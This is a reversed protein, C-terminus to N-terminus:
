RVVFFHEGTGDSARRFHNNGREGELKEFFRFLPEAQQRAYGRRGGYIPYRPHPLDRFYVIKDVPIAKRLAKKAGELSTVNLEPPHLTLM